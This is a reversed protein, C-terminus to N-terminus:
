EGEKKYKLNSIGTISGIFTSFLGILTVVLATDLKLAVGLGSILTVLAPEFVFLFWKLRDYTENKMKM